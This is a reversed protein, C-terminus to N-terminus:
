KQALFKKIQIYHYKRGTAKYTHSFQDSVNLSSSLSRTNSFLTRLLINTGLLSSTVPSDLFSCLSSSIIQVGRGINNPHYFRSSHSPCPMYRTNSLLLRYLTNTPFGSPIFGSPLGLRLHSSLILISRWSTHNPTHIPDLQSLIPVPPPCKHIRYLVKSNRLIRTIEQSASFWNAESSPNQEM